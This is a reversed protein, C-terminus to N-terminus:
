AMLVQCFEEEEKKCSSVVRKIIGKVCMKYDYFDRLGFVLCNLLICGEEQGRERLDYVMDHSVKNKTAPKMEVMTQTQTRMIM